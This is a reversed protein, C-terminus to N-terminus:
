LWIESVNAWTKHYLLLIFNIKTTLFVCSINFFDKWFKVAIQRQISWTKFSFGIVFLFCKQPLCFIFKCSIKISQTESQSTMMPQTQSGQKGCIALGKRMYQKGREAYIHSVRRAHSTVGKQINPYWKRCKHSGRKVCM